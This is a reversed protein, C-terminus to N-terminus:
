SNSGDSQNQQSPRVRPRNQNYSNERDTFLKQRETEQAELIEKIKKPKLGFAKGAKEPTDAYVWGEYPYTFMEHNEETLQFAPAYIANAKELKENYFPM